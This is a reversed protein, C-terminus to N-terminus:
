QGSVAAGTKVGLQVPTTQAAAYWLEAPGNGYWETHSAGGVLVLGTGNYTVNPSTDITVPNTADLNTLTIKGYAVLLPQANPNGIGLLNWSDTEFNWVNLATQTGIIVHNLGLTAPLGTLTVGEGATLTLVGVKAQGFMLTDGINPTLDTDITAAGISASSYPVVKGIMAADVTFGVTKATAPLSITDVWDPAVVPTASTGVTVEFSRTM